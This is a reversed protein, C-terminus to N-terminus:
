QKENTIIPRSENAQNFHLTADGTPNAPCTLGRLPADAVSSVVGGAGRFADPFSQVTVKRV